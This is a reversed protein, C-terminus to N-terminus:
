PTLYDDHWLVRWTGDSQRGLTVVQAATFGHETTYYFTSDFVAYARDEVVQVSLPDGEPIPIGQNPRVEHIFALFVAMADENTLDAFTLGGPTEHLIDRLPIRVGNIDGMLGEAHEGQLRILAPPFDALFDTLVEPPFLRAVAQWNRYLLAEQMSVLTSEPTSFDVTPRIPEVVPSAGTADRVAQAIDEAENLSVGEISLKGGTIASQVVPAALLRDGLVIALMHGINSSTIDASAEAADPAFRISVLPLETLPDEGVGATEVDGPGLTLLTEGTWVTAGSPMPFPALGTTDITRFGEDSLARRIELVDQASAGAPLFLWILVVLRFTM